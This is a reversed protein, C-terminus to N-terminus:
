EHCTNIFQAIDMATRMKALDDNPNHLSELEVRDRLISEQCHTLTADDNVALIITAIFHYKIRDPKSLKKNLTPQLKSLYDAAKM